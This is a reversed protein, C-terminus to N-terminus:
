ASGPDTPVLRTLLDDKDAWLANIWQQIKQRHAPDSTYACLSKLRRDRSAQPLGSQRM